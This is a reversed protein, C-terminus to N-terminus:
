RWGDIRRDILELYVWPTISINVSGRGGEEERKCKGQKKPMELNNWEMESRM